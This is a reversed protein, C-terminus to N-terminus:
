IRASFWHLLNELSRRQWVACHVNDCGRVRSGCLLLYHFVKTTRQHVANDRQSCLISTRDTRVGGLEQLCLPVLCLDASTESIMTVRKLTNMHLRSTAQPPIRAKQSPPILTKKRTIQQTRQITRSTTQSLPSGPKMATPDKSSNLKLKQQTSYTVSFWSFHMKGSARPAAPEGIQLTYREAPEVYSFVAILVYCLLGLASLGVCLLFFLLLGSAVNSLERTCGTVRFAHTKTSSTSSGNCTEQDHALM